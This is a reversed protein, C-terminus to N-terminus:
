VWDSLVLNTKVTETIHPIEYLFRSFVDCDLVAQTLITLLRSQQIYYNGSKIEQKRLVFQNVKVM